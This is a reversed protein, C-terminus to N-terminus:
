YFYIVLFVPWDAVDPSHLGGVPIGREELIVYVIYRRDQQFLFLAKELKVQRQGFQKQYNECAEVLAGGYKAIAAFYEIPPFYASSLLLRM